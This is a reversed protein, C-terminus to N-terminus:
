VLAFREVPLPEVYSLPQLKQSQQASRQAPLVRRAAISAARTRSLPRSAPPILPLVMFNDEEVQKGSELSCIKLRANHPWKHTTHSRNPM